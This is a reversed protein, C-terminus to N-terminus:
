RTLLISVIIPITFFLTLNLPTPPKSYTSQRPSDISGHLGVLCAPLDLQNVTMTRSRIGHLPHSDLAIPPKHDIVDNSCEAKRKILVRM